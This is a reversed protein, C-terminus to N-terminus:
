ICLTVFSPLDKTLPILQYRDPVKLAKCLARVASLKLIDTIILPSTGRNNALISLNWSVCPALSKIDATAPSVNTGGGWLQKMMSNFGEVQSTSRLPKIVERSPKNKFVKLTAMYM